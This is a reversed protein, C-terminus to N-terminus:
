RRTPSETEQRDFLLGWLDLRLPKDGTQEFSVLEKALSGTAIRFRSADIPELDFGGLTRGAYGMLMVLKEGNSQIETTWGGPGEYKGAYNTATQPFPVSAAAKSEPKGMVPILERLMTHAVQGETFNMENMLVIVGFKLDPVFKVEASCGPGSGGHGIILHGDTRNLWWGIGLGFSWDDSLYVPNWMERVTTSGLVAKNGAAGERFQFSIFRALDEVTSNLGGGPAGGGSFDMESAHRRSGGDERVTEYLIARHARMTDNFVWGSSHMGLPELIHAKVYDKYPEGAIHALAHGMLYVGLNSYHMEKVPAWMIEKDKLGSLMVEPSPVHPAGASDTIFGPERPIGAVHAAVQRFTPPRPDAFRSRLRFQPLHKEIPDDLSLKGQDRLQMLMTDTFMKTISGIHYVSDSSAPIKHELDAFGYGRAWALKQDIVVGVSMGVTRNTKQLNGLEEDLRALTLSLDKVRNGAGIETGRDVQPIGATLIDPLTAVAVSLLMALIRAQSANLKKM